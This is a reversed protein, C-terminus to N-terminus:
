ALLACYSTCKVDLVRLDITVRHSRVLDPSVRAWTWWRSLWSGASPAGDCCSQVRRAPGYRPSTAARTRSSWARCSVRSPHTPQPQRDKVRHASNLASSAAAVSPEPERQSRSAVVPMVGLGPTEPGHHAGTPCVPRRLHRLATGGTAVWGTSM